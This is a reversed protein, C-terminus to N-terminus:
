NMFVDESSAGLLKMLLGLRSPAPNIKRNTRFKAARDASPRAHPRRASKRRRRSKEVSKGLPFISDAADTMEEAYPDSIRDPMSASAQHAESWELLSSHPIPLGKRLRIYDDTIALHM